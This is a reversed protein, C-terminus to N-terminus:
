SGQPFSPISLPSCHIDSHPVDAYSLKFKRLYQAARKNEFRGKMLAKFGILGTSLMKM